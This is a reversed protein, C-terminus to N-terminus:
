WQPSDTRYGREVILAKQFEEDGLEAGALQGGARHAELDGFGRRDLVQVVDHVEHAFQLIPAAVERMSSKPLPRDENMYKFFV